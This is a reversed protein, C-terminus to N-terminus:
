QAQAVVGYGLALRFGGGVMIEARQEHLVVTFRAARLLREMGAKTFRWYDNTEVEAWNTPYTMVLYGRRDMLWERFRVILRDPEPIYQLVQTCLIADYAKDLKWPDTDVDSAHYDGSVLDRYPQPNACTWQLGAGFDLVSGTLYSQQHEVFTRISNRELQRITDRDVATM